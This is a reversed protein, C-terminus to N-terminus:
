IEESVFYEPKGFGLILLFIPRLLIAVPMPTGLIKSKM